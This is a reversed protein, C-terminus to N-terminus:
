QLLHKYDPFSNINVRYLCYRFKSEKRISTTNNVNLNGMWYAELGETRIDNPKKYNERPIQFIEPGKM